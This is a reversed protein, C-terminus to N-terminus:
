VTVKAEPQKATKSGRPRGRKPTTAAPAAEEAEKVEAETQETENTAEAPEDAGAEDVQLSEPVPASDPAPLEGAVGQEGPAGDISHDGDTGIDTAVKEPAATKKMAAAALDAAKRLVAEDHNGEEAMEALTGKAPVPGRSPPAELVGTSHPLRRVEQGSGRTGDVDLHLQQSAFAAAGGADTGFSRIAPGENLDLRGFHSIGGESQHIPRVTTPETEPRRNVSRSATAAVPAESKQPMQCIDTDLEIRLGAEVLPQLVKLAEGRYRFRWEDLGVVATSGRKGASELLLPRDLCMLRFGRKPNTNVLKFRLKM